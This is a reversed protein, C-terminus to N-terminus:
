ASYRMKLLFRIIYKKIVSMNYKFSSLIDMCESVALLHWQLSVYNCFLGGLNIPQSISALCFINFYEPFM